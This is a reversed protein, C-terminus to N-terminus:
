LTEGLDSSEGQEVIPFVSPSIICVPFAPTERERETENVCVCVCTHENGFHM